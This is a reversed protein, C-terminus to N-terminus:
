EGNILNLYNEREEKNICGEHFGNHYVQRLEQGLWRKLHYGMSNKESDSVGNRKMFRDARKMFYEYDPRSM